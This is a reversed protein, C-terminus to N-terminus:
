RKRRKLRAKRFAIQEDYLPRHEHPQQGPWTVSVECGYNPAHPVGGSIRHVKARPMKGSDLIPALIEADERRLYGICQGLTNDVRVANADHENDPERVLQLPEAPDTNFLIDQRSVGDANTQAEGVIHFVRKRTPAKIAPKNSRQPVVKSKEARIGFLRALWSM